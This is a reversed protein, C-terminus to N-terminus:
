ALLEGEGAPVIHLLLLISGFGPKFRKASNFICGTPCCRVLEGAM